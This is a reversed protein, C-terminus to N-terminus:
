VTNSLHMMVLCCPWPSVEGQDGKVAGCTENVFGRSKCVGVENGVTVAVAMNRLSIPLMQARMQEQIFIMNNIFKEGGM